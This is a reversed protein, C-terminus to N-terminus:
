SPGLGTDETRVKSFVGHGVVKKEVGEAEDQDEHESQAEAPPHIM